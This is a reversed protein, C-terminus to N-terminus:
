FAEANQVNPYAKRRLQERPAGVRVTNLELFPQSQLMQVAQTDSQIVNIGISRNCYEMVEFLVNVLTTSQSVRTKPFSTRHWDDATADTVKTSFTIVFDFIGTPIALTM